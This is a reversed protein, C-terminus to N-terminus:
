NEDIQIDFDLHDFNLKVLSQDRQNQCQPWPRKQLNM